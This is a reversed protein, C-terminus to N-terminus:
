AADKFRRDGQEETFAPEADKGTLKKLGYTFLRAQDAALQLNMSLLASPQQMMGKWFQWYAKGLGFPDLKSGSAKDVAWDALRIM